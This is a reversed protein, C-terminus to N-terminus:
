SGKLIDLLKKGDPSGLGTCADWGSQAKYGNIKVRGKGRVDYEVGNDGKVIDRFAGAPAAKKYLIQNIFGVPKGLGQNLLAILGAWLPAVASTGGIGGEQGDVLVDIGPGAAAYGSVDPIGRGIHGDGNASPPLGLGKQYAPSEFYSSIGGGTAGGGDADENWVTENIISNGSTELNTGGCSLIFPSSGPYSVHAKDDDIEFNNWPGPRICSSGNDGSAICITVGSLAADVFADNVKDRLSKTWGGEEEWLGYSISIVSPRNVTDHLVTTIANALEGEFDQFFYVVIKAKPAIAASVEIDLLVEGDIGGPNGDPQNPGVSSINPVAIGLKSFYTKLESKNFGGGFELIAICQGSGDLNTPFNYLKALETPLYPKSRSVEEVAVQLSKSSRLVPKIVKRRSLGYVGQIIDSLSSPISIDGERGIHRGDPDNHEELTVKFAKNVAGITGSLTIKRAGLSVEEVKLGYEEAFAKVKDIDEKTAGYKSALEETSLYERETPLQNAIKEFMREKEEKFKDKLYIQFQIVKNEDAPGVVEDDSRRSRESGPIQSFDRHNGQKAM